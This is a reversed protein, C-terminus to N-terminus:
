RDDALNGNWDRVSLNKTRFGPDDSVCRLCCAHTFRAAIRPREQASLM